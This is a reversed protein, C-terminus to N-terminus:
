CSCAKTGGWGVFHPGGPGGNAMRQHVKSSCTGLRHLKGARATQAAAWLEAHFADDPNIGRGLM